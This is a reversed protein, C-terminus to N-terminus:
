MLDDDDDLDGFDDAASSAGGGLHEGDELFQLNNLGVAVGKNTPIQFPYLNVSARGYCGSYFGDPDIIEEMESDVITPKRSSNANLFMMGEYNPDDPRDIDGDKLPSKAKFKAGFKEKGQALAAKFAEEIRGILKTNEKPILISVSYKPTDGENMARAKFVNCYCFRVKSTVVKTKM